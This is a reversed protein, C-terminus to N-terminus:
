AQRREDETCPANKPDFIDADGEQWGGDYVRQGDHMVRICGEGPKGGPPTGTPDWWWGMATDIFTYTSPGGTGYSGTPIWPNKPDNYAFTFMGREVNEPTLNPGAAQIAEFLNLFVHYIEFNFRLNPVTGPEEALYAMYPYSKIFAPLRWLYSAGFAPPQSPSGYNREWLARDMASVSDFYWEPYYDVGNAANQFAPLSLETQQPICYCVVTTVHENKLSAIITAAQSRGDQVYEKQVDFTMNCHEKVAVQLRAALQQLYPGRQTEEDSWLLAFKRVRGKLDPDTSFRAKGGRLKRCLYSATFGVTSEQDPVFSWFYPAADKYTQAPVDYNWGFVPVYRDKMDVAISQANQVLVTLAFPHHDNNYILTEATRQPPATGLGGKSAFARMSVRRGYTQYREAFYRLMAKVTRVHYKYYYGNQPDNSATANEDGPSWPKNMDGKVFFDNYYGISIEDKTVGQWTNGGNDGDFFAVCPPSLPDETQKPPNGVCKKQRPKFQPPPPPPPVGPLAGSGTGGSGIGASSASNTQSFNSDQNEQNNGPVPAYEASAQPNNQPIRLPNPLVLFVLLFAFGLAVVPPWKKDNIQSGRRGSVRLSGPPSRRRLV